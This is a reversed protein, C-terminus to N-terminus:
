YGLRPLGRDCVLVAARLRPDASELAYKVNVFVGPLKKLVFAGGLAEAVM